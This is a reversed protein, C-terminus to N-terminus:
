PGHFGLYATKKEERHQSFGHCPLNLTTAEKGLQM